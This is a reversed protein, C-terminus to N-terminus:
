RESFLFQLHHISFTIWQNWTQEIMMCQIVNTISYIFLLVCQSTKSVWHMWDTWQKSLFNSFQIFVWPSLCIDNLLGSNNNWKLSFHLSFFLSFLTIELVGHVWPELHIIKNITWLKWQLCSCSFSGFTCPEHMILMLQAVMM